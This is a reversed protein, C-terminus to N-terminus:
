GSLFSCMVNTVIMIGYMRSIINQQSETKLFTEYKVGGYLKFKKRFEQFTQQPHNGSLQVSEYIFHRLKLKM